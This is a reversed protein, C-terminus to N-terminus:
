IMSIISKRLDIIDIALNFAMYSYLAETVGLLVFNIYITIPTDHNM